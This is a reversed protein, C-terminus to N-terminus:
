SFSSFLQPQTLQGSREVPVDTTGIMEMTVRDAGEFSLRKVKNKSSRMEEVFEMEPSKSSGLFCFFDTM